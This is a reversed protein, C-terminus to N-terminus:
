ISTPLQYMPVYEIKEAFRKSTGFFHVLKWLCGNEIKAMPAQELSVGNTKKFRQASVKTRLTSTDFKVNLMRKIEQMKLIRNSQAASITFHNLAKM